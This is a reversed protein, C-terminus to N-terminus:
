NEDEYDYYSYYKRYYGYKSKYSYGGGKELKVDNLVCGLINAGAKELNDKLKELMDFTTRRHSVVIVVGDAYKSLVAADSIILSPPTDLIIYDYEQEAAELLQQMDKSGLMESPNPPIPGSALVDIGCDDVHKIASKLDSIKVLVNTLGPSSPVDLLKNVRPKRLDSDIILVKHGAQALTIALNVSVSTKGEMPNASTFVIKKVQKGINTFQINARLTKYAEVVAFPAKEIRIIPRDVKETNIISKRVKKV